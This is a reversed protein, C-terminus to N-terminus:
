ADPAVHGESPAPVQEGALFGDATTRSAGDLRHGQPAIALEVVSAQHRAFLQKASEHRRRGENLFDIAATQDITLRDPPTPSSEQLAKM